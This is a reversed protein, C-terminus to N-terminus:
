DFNIKDLQEALRCARQTQRWWEANSGEMLYALIQAGHESRLLVLLFHAPPKRDGAAYRYCTREEFGTITHLFLGADKPFMARVMEAFWMESVTQDHDSVTQDTIKYASNDCIGHM